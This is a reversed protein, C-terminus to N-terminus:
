VGQGIFRYEITIDQRKKGDKKYKNGVTVKKVLRHLMEKDLETMDFFQKVEQVFLETNIATEESQGIRERLLETKETLDSQEQEIRQSMEKFRSESIVGNLRDDYLKYFREDLEKIRKESDQIEKQLKGFDTKISKGCRESLIKIFKEEDNRVANIQRRIDDYVVNILEDYRIYHASCFEKGRRKYNICCLAPKGNTPTLSLAYGCDACKVIGSFMHPEKNKCPRKRIKLQENADDFLKQTIIAPHTNEVVIWKEESQNIVRKSKFSLKRKKSNITHGLYERNKIIVQISTLNWDYRNDGLPKGACKMNYATPTLIKEAALTKATKNCGCNEYAVMEFIRRVIPATEDNIELVHKDEASKKYGYPAVSGIFEGRLAKARFALRTKRSCDAPYFQNFINKMPLMLDLDINDQLTDVNDGIAIFRISNEPFIDEIYKGVEIYNRGFRSLDKVIIANYKGSKMDELMRIFEPREFNTGTFGDDCYFDFISFGNTKCYDSLIKRQTEISVSTGDQEDDRSLRCYCAAVYKSQVM